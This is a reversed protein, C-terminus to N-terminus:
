LVFESSPHDWGEELWPYLTKTVSDLPLPGKSGEGSETLLGIRSPSRLFVCHWPTLLLSVSRSGSGCTHTLEPCTASSAGGGGNKYRLTAPPWLGRLSYNSAEPWPVETDLFKWSFLDKFQISGSGKGVESELFGSGHGGTGLRIKCPPFSMCDWTSAATLKESSDRSTQKPNTCIYEFLRREWGPVVGVM